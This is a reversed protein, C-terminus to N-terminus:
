SELNNVASKVIKQDFYNVSMGADILLGTGNIGSSMPSLLFLASKSVESTALAKKRLTLQEAFIYNDVYGPIGASASTKLPGSCVANFRVNNLESFSKALFAVTSDLAAKIPGMYGYNTAKTNSISVTVVSSHPNFSDKLANSLAVLSFCSINTAQLYDQLNTEHFPVLGKSYNAFAISHLLGDVKINRSNITKSFNEIDSENECDVIYFKNEELEPFLSRVKALHQETQVTLILDGGQGQIDKAVHYAVSKKNAVGTIVYIKDKVNILDLM